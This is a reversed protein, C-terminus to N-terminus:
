SKGGIPDLRQSLRSRSFFLANRARPREVRCKGNSKREAEGGLKGLVLTVSGGAFGPELWDSRNAAM